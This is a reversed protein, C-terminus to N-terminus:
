PRAQLRDDHQRCRLGPMSATLLFKSMYTVKQGKVDRPIVASWQEGGFEPTTVGRFKNFLSLEFTIIAKAQVIDTPKISFSPM